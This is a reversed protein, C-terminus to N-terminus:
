SAFTNCSAVNQTDFGRKFWYMRQESTGHTFAEPQVRQGANKQLRDDGIAAATDLAERIDGDDLINFQQDAAKAWLGAYCDAQLEMLVSLRNAQAKSSSRQQARVKRETGTINQIHHGVEHAIVYAMAFDGHGGLRKLQGMFSLDLYVKSDGPCYFPGTAATNFGCASRVSDSFLVLRPAPYESNNQRFIQSWVAETDALVVAVFEAHEDNAPPAQAPAQQSSLGGASGGSLMSLLQAPDAGLFLGILLIIITAGGGLKLGSGRRGGSRRGLGFPSSSSRGRRDEINNSRRRGKWRM